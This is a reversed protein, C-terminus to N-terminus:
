LRLAAGLSVSVVNLWNVAYDDPDENSAGGGLYRV